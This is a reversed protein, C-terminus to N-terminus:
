MPDKLRSQQFEYLSSKSQGKTWGEPGPLWAVCKVDPKAQM